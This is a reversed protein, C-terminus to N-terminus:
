EDDDGISELLQLFTNEGKMFEMLAPVRSIDLVGKRVAKLLEVKDSKTLPIKM